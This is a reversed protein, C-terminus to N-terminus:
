PGVDMGTSAAVPTQDPLIFPMRGIRPAVLWGIAYVVRLRVLLRAM